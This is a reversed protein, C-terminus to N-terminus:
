NDLKRKFAAIFFGDTADRQPWTRAAGGDVLLSENVPAISQHFREKAALFGEVVDENEERELSCTSYVLLGGPRVAAAANQLFRAQQEAMRKIDAETLRWRIEPNHRLTGTGSCPADLLVRDFSDNVFPLPTGADAITLSIKKLRQSKIAKAVSSLRRASVDMAIISASDNAKGAILTTKGGPAACVDLVRDGPQANLVEGVLQSAEDQLYIKGREVLERVEATAGSVRWAHSAIKSSTIVAGASRLHDLVSSNGNVANLIRIAVPPTENNARALLQTEDIGLRTTWREILWLPHSTEIAIREQFNSINASPSYAPERAVNRLVANVFSRASSLRARAVLNVSENVAASAPIRSLFRLQYIALRLALLVPLDLTKIQRRAFHEIITDLQLQWRLVGMVLEHCLARDLSSLAPDAAALAVSSFTGEEVQKLADFAAARAPSVSNSKALDIAL